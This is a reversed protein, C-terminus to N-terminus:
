PMLPNRERRKTGHRMQWQHALGDFSGRVFRDGYSDRCPFSTVMTNVIGQMFLARSGVIKGGELDSEYLPVRWLKYTRRGATSWLNIRGCMGLFWGGTGKFQNGPQNFLNANAIVNGRGPPLKTVVRTLQADQSIMGQTLNIARSRAANLSPFDATDFYWVSTWYYFDSSGEKLPCRVGVDFQYLPM